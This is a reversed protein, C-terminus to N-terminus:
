RRPSGAVNTRRPHKAVSMSREASGTREPAGTGIGKGSVCGTGTWSSSGASTTTAASVSSASTPRAGTTVPGCFMVRRSIIVVTPSVNPRESSTTPSARSCARSCTSASAGAGKTSVTGANKSCCTSRGGDTIM